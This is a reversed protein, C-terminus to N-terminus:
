DGSRPDGRSPLGGSSDEPATTAPLAPFFLSARAGGGPRIDLMLRGRHNAMTTRVVFLGLGSGDPKTTDLPEAPAIGGPYGPGNDQVRLQWEPGRRQLDIGIWGSDATGGRIAEAANRLLNLVAIQIQEADGEIWAPEESAELSLSDLELTSDVGSSRAYLVTSRCVQRLDLRQPVTQVNRLLTRMKEITLVVRDAEAAISQLQHRWPAPPQVGPSSRVQELLLQSNLLLVSLPQNIEHAVAAAQLSSSLKTRLQTLARADRDREREMASQLETTLQNFREVLQGLADDVARMEDSDDPSIGSSYHLPKAVEGSLSGGLRDAERQLQHLPRLLGQILRHGLLVALVLALLSALLAIAASRESSRTQPDAPMATLLVWSLGEERGWPSADIFYRRGDITVPRTTSADLVGPRLRLSGRRDLRQFKATLLARALPHSLSALNNRSVRGGSRRLTDAPRSSAVLRGDPEVILALGGQDRWITNLWTSLQSLVMDVGIVGELRRDAGHIPVNYAISFVEPKDEWSYISSWTPRGARATEAYWAERHISAMGPVLEVLTGRTGGPGLQHVAMVGRGRRPTDENLLLQGDDTREVGVFAGDATGLNIYAVPFVQMQRWFVRAFHEHDDLRHGGNRIELLNLANITRPARLRQSLRESLEQIASNQRYRESVALGSQRGLSYSLWSLSGALLLLQIGNVLTLRAALRGPRRLRHFRQLM